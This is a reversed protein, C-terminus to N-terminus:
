RFVILMSTACLNESLRLGVTSQFTVAVSECHGTVYSDTCDIADVLLYSKWM